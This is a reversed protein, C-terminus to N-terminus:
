GIIINRKSRLKVDLVVSFREYNAFKLVHIKGSIPGHCYNCRIEFGTGKRIKNMNIEEIENPSQSKINNM